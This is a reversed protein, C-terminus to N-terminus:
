VRLKECVGWSGCGTAHILVGVQLRKAIRGFSRTGGSRYSEQCCWLCVEIFVQLEAALAQLEVQTGWEVGRIGECLKTIQEGAPEARDGDVLFPAFVDAHAEIYSAAKRRLLSHAKLPSLNGILYVAGQQECQHALARYM